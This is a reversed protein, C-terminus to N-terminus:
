LEELSAPSYSPNSETTFFEQSSSPNFEQPLAYQIQDLNIDDVSSGCDNASQMQQNPVLLVKFGRANGFPRRYNQKQQAMWMCKDTPHTLSADYRKAELCHQCPTNASPKNFNRNRPFPNTSGRFSRRNSNGAGRSSQYNNVANINFSNNASINFLETTNSNELETLMTEIQDALVRQNCALTPREDTFLYGRTKSVHAPLRPDIKALWKEVIFLECLPSLKGKTTLDKGKFKTGYEPMSSIYHDRLHMYAQQYTFTDDFNFKIDNAALFQEGKTTLNFNAKIEDIIWKWSTSERLVTETFGTPCNVAVSTLFDKFASRFKNTEDDNRTENDEEYKILGNTEDEDSAIWTSHTGGPLFALWTDHQRCFSLQHYEWSSLDDRSLPGDTPKLKYPKISSKPM